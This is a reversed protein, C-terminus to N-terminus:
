ISKARHSTLTVSLCMAVLALKLEQNAKYTIKRPDRSVEIDDLIKHVCFYNLQSIIDIQRSTLCVNVEIKRESVKNIIKQIENLLLQEKKDM